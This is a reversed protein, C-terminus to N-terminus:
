QSLSVTKIGSNKAFKHSDVQNTYSIWCGIELCDNWGMMNIQKIFLHKSLSYVNNILFIFLFTM